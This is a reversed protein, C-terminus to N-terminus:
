QKQWKTTLCNVKSCLPIGRLLEGTTNECSLTYFYDPSSKRGNNFMDCRQLANDTALSPLTNWVCHFTMEGQLATHQFDGAYSFVSAKALIDAGAYGEDNARVACDEQKGRQQPSTLSEHSLFAKYIKPATDNIFLWTDGKASIVTVDLLSALIQLAVKIQFELDALFWDGLYSM